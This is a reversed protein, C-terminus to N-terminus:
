SAIGSNEQLFQLFGCSGYGAYSVEPILVAAQIELIYVSTYIWSSNYEAHALELSFKLLYHDSGIVTCSM